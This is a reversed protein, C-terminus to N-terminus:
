AIPADHRLTHILIFQLVIIFCQIITEPKARADMLM